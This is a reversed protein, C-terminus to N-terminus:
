NLSIKMLIKLREKAQYAYSTDPYREMLYKFTRIADSNRGLKEYSYAKLYAIEVGYPTSGRYSEAYSLKELASGYQHSTILSRARILEDHQACGVLVAVCIYIVSYHSVKKM